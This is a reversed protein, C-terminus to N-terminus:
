GHVDAVPEGLLLGDADVRDRGEGSRHVRASDGGHHEGSHGLLKRDFEPGGVCWFHDLTLASMLPSQLSERMVHWVTVGDLTMMPRSPTAYVIFGQNPSRIAENNQIVGQAVSDPTCAFGDPKSTPDAGPSSRAGTQV